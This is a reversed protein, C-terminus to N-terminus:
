KEKKDTISFGGSCEDESEIGFLNLKHELLTLQGIKDGKNIIFDTDYEMTGMRLSFNNYVIPNHIIVKIEDKYDLNFIKIGSNLMLGKTALLDNITLQLYHSKLFENKLNELVRGHMVLYNAIIKRWDIVQFDIAIGLGVLKTEGAGITVDENAYVDMCASYKSGRTPLTADEAVKKFM